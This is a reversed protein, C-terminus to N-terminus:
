IRELEERLKEGGTYKLEVAILNEDDPCLLVCDIEPAKRRKRRKNLPTVRYEWRFHKRIIDPPFKDFLSKFFNM